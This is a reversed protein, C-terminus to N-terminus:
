RGGWLFSVSGQVISKGGFWSVGGVGDYRNAGTMVPYLLGIEPLIRWRWFPLAVGVSAGVYSTATYATTSTSVGAAGGIFTEHVRGAMVLQVNPRLQKGVLLALDAQYVLLILNDAYTGAGALSPVVSVVTDSGTPTLQVKSSVEIGSPGISAAVDFRDVVGYRVTVGCMPYSTFASRNVEAQYSDEVVLQWHGRGVTQPVQLSTASACGTLFVIGFAISKWKTPGAM